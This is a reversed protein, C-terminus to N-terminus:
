KQNKNKEILTIMDSIRQPITTPDNAHVTTVGNGVDWVIVNTGYYTAYHNAIALAEIKTSLSDAIPESYYTNENKDTTQVYWGSEDIGVAISIHDKIFDKFLPKM